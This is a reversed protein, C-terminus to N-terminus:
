LKKRIYKKFTNLKNKSGIDFIKTKIKILFVENIDILKSFINLELSKNKKSIYNLIEKKCFYTGTNIYGSSKKPKETFKFKTNQFYFNGSDKNKKNTICINIIKSYNVKKLFKIIKIENLTDGNMLIFKKELKKKARLLALATGQPHKEKHFDVKIKKSIKLKLIERRLINGKYGTIFFIKKFGQAVINKILYYIFPKGFISISPKPKLLTLNGLRKGYGGALIVIQYNLFKKYESM